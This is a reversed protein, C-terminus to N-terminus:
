ELLDFGRLLRVTRQCLPCAGDYLVQVPAWRAALWRGIARRARTLDFFVIQLVILDLFLIKQFLFIGTHALAMGIPMIHRAIRSFLVAIFGVELVLTMLGLAAFIFDPASTLYASLAWDYERPGLTESYLM